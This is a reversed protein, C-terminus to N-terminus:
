RSKFTWQSLGISTIIDPWTEYASLGAEVPYVDTVAWKKQNMLFISANYVLQQKFPNTVKLMMQQHIKKEAIQTFSITLTKAPDLIEKVAKMSKIVGNEQEVEIYVTEGPYLQVTKDPLVFPTAKLDEEYFNKKDVAVILKYATRKLLATDQGYSYFAITLLAICISIKTKVLNLKQKSSTVPKNKSKRGAM